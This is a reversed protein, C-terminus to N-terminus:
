LYGIPEFVEVREGKGKLEAWGLSRAQIRDKVKEYTAASIIINTGYEKNIGELRSAVNVADGIVTFDMFEESGVNGIVAEGTNIGIGINIPLKGAQKRWDLMAERMRMAASVALFAHDEDTLPFGWYAMIADGILKNISGRYENMIIRNMTSFYQSLFTQVVEPENQDSFTTFGRIDSFMFTMERREGGLTVKEPQEEIIQLVAPSVYKGFAFRMQQRKKYENAYQYVYTGSFCAWMGLVPYIFGIWLNWVLYAQLCLLFYGLSLSVTLLLSIGASRFRLIATTLLLPMLLFLGWNLWFPAPKVFDNHLANDLTNALIYMGPYRASYITQHQDVTALVFGIIAYQDKFIEPQLLPKEPLGPTQCISLAPNEDCELQIESLVLDVFSFEPYVPQNVQVGHGYWKILPIGESGLNLHHRNWQLRGNQSLTLKNESQLLVGLPLTPYIDKGYLSFPPWRRINGQTDDVHGSLDTIFTGGAASYFRMGSNLLETYPPILSDYTFLRKFVPFQELGQVQITNHRLAARIKPKLQDPRRASQGQNEFILQSLVPKGAQISQALFRDGAPDDQSPGKNFSIDLIIAKPETRNLFRIAYGAAQRTLTDGFLQRYTPHSVTKADIKILRIPSIHARNESKYLKQRITLSDLEWAFALKRLPAICLSAILVALGALLIQYLRKRIDWGQFRAKNNM